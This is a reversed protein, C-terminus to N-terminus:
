AAMECFYSNVDNCYVDDMGGEVILLGCNQNGGFNDPQNPFQTLKTTWGTYGTEELPDGEITVWEGEQYLDHIGLWATRINNDKMLRLLLQEEAESNIIALYGSLTHFINLFTM